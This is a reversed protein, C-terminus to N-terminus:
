CFRSGNKTKGLSQIVWVVFANNQMNRCEYVVQLQASYLLAYAIM